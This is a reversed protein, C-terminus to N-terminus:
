TVLKGFHDVQIVQDTEACWATLRGFASLAVGTDLLVMSKGAIPAYLDPRGYNIVPTHGFFGRRRWAKTQNIETDDFRDWLVHHHLGHDMHLRTAIDPSDDREDIDWKAHVIFLDPEEISMRLARFFARHEAPVGAVLEAIRGPSPRREVQDVLEIDAGYSELTRDLGHNMFWVFTPVPDAPGASSRNHLVVDFIDDHNGRSFRAGKLTLLLDVVGRSDPGRNVYDGVFLLLPKPDAKDIAELLTELPRLMGHIDGIIWRVSEIDYGIARRHICRTLRLM